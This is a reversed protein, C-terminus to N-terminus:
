KQHSESAAAEEQANRLMTTIRMTLEHLADPSLRYSRGRGWGSAELIKSELLQGILVMSEGASPLGRIKQASLYGSSLLAELAELAVADERVQASHAPVAVSGKSMQVSNLNKLTDMVDAFGAFIEHMVAAIQSLKHWLPELENRCYNRSWLRQQALVIQMRQYPKLAERLGGRELSEHFLALGRCTSELSKELSRAIKREEAVSIRTESM